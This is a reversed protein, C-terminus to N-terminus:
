IRIDLRLLTCVQPVTWSSTSSASRSPSPSHAAKHTEAWQIPAVNLQTLLARHVFQNGNKREEEATFKRLLEKFDCFAHEIYRNPGELLFQQAIPDFRAQVASSYKCADSTSSNTGAFVYFVTPIHTETSTIGSLVLLPTQPTSM